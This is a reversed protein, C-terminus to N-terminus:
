GKGLAELQKLLKAALEQYEIEAPNFGSGLLKSRYSEILELAVFYDGDLNENDIDSSLLLPAHSYCYQLVQHKEPDSISPQRLLETIADVGVYKHLFVLDAYGGIDSPVKDFSPRPMGFEFTRIWDPYGMEIWIDPVSLLLDLVYRLDFNRMQLVILEPSDSLSLQGEFPQFYEMGVKQGDGYNSFMTRSFDLLASM